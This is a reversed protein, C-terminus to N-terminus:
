PGGDQMAKNWATKFTERAKEIAPGSVSASYFGTAICVHIECMTHVFAMTAELLPDLTEPM